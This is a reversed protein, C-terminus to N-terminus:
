VECSEAFFVDSHCGDANATIGGDFRRADIMHDTELGEVVDQLVGIHDGHAYWGSRCGYWRSLASRMADRLGSAMMMVRAAAVGNFTLAQRRARPLVFGHRRARHSRVPVAAASEGSHHSGFHRMVGCTAPPLWRSIVSRLIMEM